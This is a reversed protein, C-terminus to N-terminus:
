ARRRIRRWRGPTMGTVRKFSRFFATPDCFGSLLAIQEIRDDTQLLLEMAHKLRLQQLYPKPGIGMHHRMLRSLYDPSFHFTEALDHVRIPQNFHLTLHDMVAKALRKEPSMAPSVSDMLASLVELFVSQHLFFQSPSAEKTQELRHFLPMLIEPKYHGSIPMLVQSHPPHDFQGPDLLNFGASGTGNKIASFHFFYFSVAPGARNGQFLLGPRELYWQGPELVKEVGSESFYLKGQILFLLVCIDLRRNVHRKGSTYDRFGSSIFHPPQISDFLVLPQSM